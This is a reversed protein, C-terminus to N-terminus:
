LFLDNDQKKSKKGAKKTRQKRKLGNSNDPIRMLIKQIDKNNILQIKLELPIKEELLDELKQYLLMDPDNIDYYEDAAQASALM